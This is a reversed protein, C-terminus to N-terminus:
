QGRGEELESAKHLQKVLNQLYRLSNVALVIEEVEEKEFGSGTQFLGMGTLFWKRCGPHACSCKQMGITPTEM